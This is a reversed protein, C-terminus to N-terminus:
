RRERCPRFRFPDELGVYINTALLFVIILFSPDVRV